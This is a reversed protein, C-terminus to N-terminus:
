RLLTDERTRPKGMCYGVVQCPKELWKENLHMNDINMCPILPVIKPKVAQKMKQKSSVDMARWYVDEDSKVDTQNIHSHSDGHTTATTTTTTIGTAIHVGHTGTNNNNHTDKVISREDKISSSLLPQILDTHASLPSSDICVIVLGHEDFTEWLKGPLLNVKLIKEKKVTKEECHQNPNLPPPPNPTESEPFFEAISQM